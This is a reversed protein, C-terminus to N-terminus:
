SNLQGLVARLSGEVATELRIGAAAKRADPLVSREAVIAEIMEGRCLIRDHRCPPTDLLRILAANLLADGLIARDADLWRQSLIPHRDCWLRRAIVLTLWIMMLVMLVLVLAALFMILQPQHDILAISFAAASARQSLGLRRGRCSALDSCVVIYQPLKM